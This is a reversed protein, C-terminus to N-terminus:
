GGKEPTGLMGKNVIREFHNLAAQAEQRLTPAVDVAGHVLCHYDPEWDVNGKDEACICHPPPDAPMKELANRLAVAMDLAADVLEMVKLEIEDRKTSDLPQLIDVMEDEFVTPDRADAGMAREVDAVSCGPPLSWGFLRNM